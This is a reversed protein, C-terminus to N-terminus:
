KVTVKYSTNGDAGKKVVIYLGKAFGHIALATGKCEKLLKGDASHIAIGTCDNGGYVFGDSILIGEDYDLEEVATGSGKEIIDFNYSDARSIGKAELRLGNTVWFTVGNKIASQTQQVSFKGNM